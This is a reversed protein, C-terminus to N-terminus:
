MDRVLNSIWKGSKIRRSILIAKVIQEAVLTLYTYEIPIKLVLGFIALLPLSIGWVGLLDIALCFRTDGGSRLTGVINTHSYCQFLAMVAIDVLIFFATMQVAASVKFVKLAIPSFCVIFVAMAGGLVWSVASFRSAYKRGTEINGAGVESGIMVMSANGVGFMFINVLRDVTAAISVAAVTDTGMRGYVFSYLCTGLGWLSENFVVPMVTTNFRRVFPKTIGKLDSLTFLMEPAYIKILVITLLMELFRSIVTALAAGAVGMAPFGLKGFILIYNLIGNTCLAFLSMLLPIKPRATGKIGIQLAMSVATPIYGAVIIVLYVAGMSIVDTEPTFLRMIGKPLFFGFLAFVLSVIVGVIINIGMVRRIGGTDGKGWFQSIFVGTGSCLGFVILNVVFFYQNALSVSAIATEGLRGIMINDLFNVGSMLLNQMAIPFILALSRRIFQKDSFTEKVSSFM